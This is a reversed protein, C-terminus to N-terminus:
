HGTTPEKSARQLASIFVAIDPRTQVLWALGGLLTAFSAKHTEPLPVDEKVHRLTGEEVVRLQQLYVRQHINIGGEVTEHQIGCHTFNKTEVKIEGFEARLADLVLTRIKIEGGGKFDDVHTSMILVLKGDRRWQYIAKDSQLPQGGTKRLAADLRLRWLRPADKLGFGPRLMQLVEILPNFDSM